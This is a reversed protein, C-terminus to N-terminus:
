QGIKQEKAEKELVQRLMSLHKQKDMKMENWHDVLHERGDRKADEIYINVTSFLFNAEKDAAMLINYTSNDLGTNAHKNSTSSSM